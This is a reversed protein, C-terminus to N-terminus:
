LPPLHNVQRTKITLAKAMFQRQALRRIIRVYANADVKGLRLAEGLYYIADDIAATEAVLEFLQQHAPNAALFVAEPRTPGDKLHPLVSELEKQKAQAEELKRELTAINEGLRKKTEELQEKELAVVRASSNLSAHQDLLRRNEATSHEMVRNLRSELLDVLALKYGLHRRQLDDEPGSDLLSTKNPHNKPVGTTAQSVVPQQQLQEQLVMSMSKRNQKASPSSVSASAIPSPPPRYQSDHLKLNALAENDDDDDNGVAQNTNTTKPPSESMSVMPRLTPIPPRGPVSNFKVSPIAQPHSVPAQSTTPHSPSAAINALSQQPRISNSIVIGSSTSDITNAIGATSISTTYQNNPKPSATAETTSVSSEMTSSAPMGPQQTFVPPEISFVKILEEVLGKLTKTSPDSPWESIYKHFIKGTLDVYYSNIIIMNETPKVFCRPSIAPFERPLWAIIPINFTSGNYVIPITGKLCILDQRIGNKDVFTDVAPKLGPYEKTVEGIQALVPGSNAFMRVATAKLTGEDLDTGM